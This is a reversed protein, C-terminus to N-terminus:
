DAADCAGKMDGAGYLKQLKAIFVAEDDRFLDPSRGHLLRAWSRVAIGVRAAVTALEGEVGNLVDFLAEPEIEAFSKRRMMGEIRKAAELDRTELERLVDKMSRASANEDDGTVAALLKLFDRAREEFEAYGSLTDTYGDSFPSAPKIDPCDARTRLHQIASGQMPGLALLAVSSHPWSAAFRGLKALQRLRAHERGLFIKLPLKELCLVAENLLTAASEGLDRGMGPEVSFRDLDIDDLSAPTRSAELVLADAFSVMSALAADYTSWHARSGKETWLALADGDSPATRPPTQESLFARIDNFAKRHREHPLYTQRYRYLARAFRSACARVAEDSGGAALLEGVADRIEDFFAYGDMSALFDLLARDGLWLLLGSGTNAPAAVLDFLSLDLSRDLQSIAKALIYLPRDRNGPIAGTVVRALRVREESRLEHADAVADVDNMVHESREM